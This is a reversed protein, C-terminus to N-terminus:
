QLWGWIKNKIINCVTTRSVGFIDAVDKQQLGNKVLWRVWRVETETLTARANKQGRTTHGHRITDAINQKHTDWRLNDLHNNFRNGDCHCVEMGPPRKCLFTELVLTAVYRNVSRGDKRLSVFLYNGRGGVGPRLKRACVRRVSGKPNNIVTREVSWVNGLTDVDYLGEFGAIPKRVCNNDM